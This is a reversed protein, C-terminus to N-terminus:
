AGIEGAGAGAGEGAVEGAGRVNTCVPLLRGGCGTATRGRQLQNVGYSTTHFRRGGLALYQATVM